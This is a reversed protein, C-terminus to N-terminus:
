GDSYTFGFSEVFWNYFNVAVPRYEILENLTKKHLQEALPFRDQGEVKWCSPVKDVMFLPSESIYKVMRYALFDETMKEMIPIRGKHMVLNGTNLAFKLTDSTAELDFNTPSLNVILLTLAKGGLSDKLLHTLVNGAFDVYDPRDLTLNTIVRELCRLSENIFLAEEYLMEDFGILALRESGALDIFTIKSVKVGPSDFDETELKITFLLHSRSSTLNADTERMQRNDLGSNFLKILREEGSLREDGQASDNRDDLFGVPEIERLGAM